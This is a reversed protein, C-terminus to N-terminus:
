VGLKVLRSSKPVESICLYSRIDPKVPGSYRDITSVFPRLPGNHTTLTKLLVFRHQVVAFRQESGM